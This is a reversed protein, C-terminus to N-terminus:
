LGETEARAILRDLGARMQARKESSLPRITPHRNVKARGAHAAFPDGAVPITRIQIGSRRTATALAAAVIHRCAVDHDRGFYTYDECKCSESGLDVKHYGGRTSPVAWLDGELRHVKGTNFTLMGRVTRQQIAEVKTTTHEHDDALITKVVNSIERTTLLRALAEVVSARSLKAAV